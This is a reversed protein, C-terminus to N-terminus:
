SGRWSELRRGASASCCSPSWLVRRCGHRGYWGTAWVAWRGCLATRFREIRAPPVQELEARALAGVALGALYPHANFYVAQRALASRYAEGDVGGPLRRLAPEICFGVGNGVLLEYNWSGRIGLMRLYMSAHLAADLPPAEGVMQHAGSM